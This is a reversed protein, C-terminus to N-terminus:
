MAPFPSEAGSLIYLPLLLLGPLICGACTGTLISRLPFSSINAEPYRKFSWEVIRSAQLRVFTRRNIENIQTLLPPNRVMNTDVGKYTYNALLLHFILLSIDAIPRRIGEEDPGVLPEPLENM